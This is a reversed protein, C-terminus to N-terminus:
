SLNVAADPSKLSQSNSFILIILKRKFTDVSRVVTDQLAPSTVFLAMRVVCLALM